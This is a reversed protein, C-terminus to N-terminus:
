VNPLVLDKVKLTISSTLIFYIRQFLRRNLFDAEKRFDIETLILHM